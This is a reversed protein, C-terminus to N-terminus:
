GALNKIVNIALDQFIPTDMGSPNLLPFKDPDLGMVLRKSEERLSQKPVAPATLGQFRGDKDPTTSDEQLTGDTGPTSFDEQFPFSFSAWLLCATFASWTIM